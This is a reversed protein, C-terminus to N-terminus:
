TILWFTSPYALLKIDTLEQFIYFFRLGFNCQPIPFIKISPWFTHDMIDPNSHQSLQINPIDTLINIPLGTNQHGDVWLSNWPRLGFNCQLIPFINISPWLKNDMIDPNSHQSLHINPIDTFINIPFCTNQHGDVRPWNWFYTLTWFQMSTYSFHQSVTLIQPGNYDDPLTLM